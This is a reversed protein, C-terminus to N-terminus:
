KLISDEQGTSDRWIKGKFVTEPTVHEANAFLTFNHKGLEPQLESILNQIRQDSTTQFLLKFSAPNHEYRIQRRQEIYLNYAQLKERIRRSSETGRDIEVFYLGRYTKGKVEAELVFVGDPYVTLAEGTRPDIVEEYLVFRDRKKVAPDVPPNDEVDFESWWIRLRVWSITELALEVNLRFESVAVSHNLFLPRVTGSKKYWRVEGAGRGSWFALAEVGTKDLFYAPESLSYGDSDQTYLRDLYANHYLLGLRRQCAKLSGGSFFLRNIQGTTLYRYKELTAFIQFDREQLVVPPPNDARATRSLRTTM